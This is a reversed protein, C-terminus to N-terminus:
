SNLGHTWAQGLAGSPEALLSPQNAHPGSCCPGVEFPGSSPKSIQTIISLAKTWSGKPCHSFPVQMALLGNLFHGVYGVQSFSGPLQASDQAQIVCFILKVSYPVQM